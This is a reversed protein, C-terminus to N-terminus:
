SGFKMFFECLLLLMNQKFCLCVFSCHSSRNSRQCGCSLLIEMFFVFGTTSRRNDIDEGWDSDNYGILKYYNSFSYFLGFDITGKLYQIIRNTVKFHTTTPSEMYRSVLKVVYLIDPRTCTLLTSKGGFKQFINSRCKKRRWEQVDRSDVNWQHTSIPKWDNM